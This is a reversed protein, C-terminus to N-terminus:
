SKKYHINYGEDGFLSSIKDRADRKLSISWDSGLKVSTSAKSNTYYLYVDCDGGRYAQLAQKLNKSLISKNDNSNFSITLRKANKEIAQDITDIFLAKLRWNNNFEDYSLQGEVYLISDKMIKNQYKSYIDEFVIVEIKSTTDDLIISITNRNRYIDCVLGAISVKSKSSFYKRDKPLAHTVKTISGNTFQSAHNKYENFPHDTLYFGLSEKEFLLKDRDHWEVTPKLVHELGSNGQAPFLSHQGAAQMEANTGAIRLLSDIASFATARNTGLIDMAGSKILAELSRKNITQSGLRKCFDILDLYKGNIKREIIIEDIINKGVGKIAGLGYNIESKQSVSFSYLSSNINPANVNISMRICEETLDMVKDTNDMDMTLVASMFEDPYHTKLWATRFAVIAYAVAHSKNFGYGAFSEMIDFVEESIRKEIGKNSAGKIFVERQNAMEDEKKKGMARRLIDAEGLTYGALIQAAQMVQEQYVFVGYTSQLIPKLLPHYYNILKNNLGHKGRVFDDVSGSDLPGPRGLALIATLDDFNDPQVGKIVNKMMKSEIQFVASTNCSKLLEFTDSDDLPITEIRVEEYGDQNKKRNIEELAHKIVTLTKLGLFDFKILGISEVDDKDFQSLFNGDEDSYLPMYETLPEPAIVVGGAHTGANRALGELSKAREILLKIEDENEYRKKLESNKEIAKDLTIGVEFPILKAVSDVYGHPMGLVRGVDRVVAKAAMTGFTIIQSVHDSGYKDAIYDIVKDRGEICFDIDFDPMSVREKNLFREFLLDHIMPDVDTIELVFAVLSGAGSGRGPGVPILNNNSWDIFDAVILFYGEFGMECITTLEYNLRELYDSEKEKNLNGDIIRKKLGELSREKLYEKTSNGNPPTFVPFIPKGSDLFFNCRKAIETTNELAEPIEAFVKEMEASSKLYQHKTYKKLRSPDSLIVKDQIAVRTEHSSFDEKSIFRVDNTAVVPISYSTAIQLANEIYNDENPRGLKQLELYFNDPFLELWYKLTYQIDQDKKALIKQGIEGFQGGSLAILGKLRESSLWEEIIFSKDNFRGKSHALSLLKSLNKFGYNDKCLLTMRYSDSDSLRRKFLVDSGIIPKIGKSKAKNYFKVLSFTNAEESLAIAPMNKELSSNILSPISIVSDVLSFESHVKLHIFGNKNM